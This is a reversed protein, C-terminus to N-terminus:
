FAYTLCVQERLNKLFEDKATEYDEPSMDPRECEKGYSSKDEDFIIKKKPIRRTKLKLKRSLRAM